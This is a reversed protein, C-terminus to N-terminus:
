ITDNHGEPHLPSYIYIYAEELEKEMALVIHVIFSFSNSKNNQKKVEAINRSLQINEISVTCANLSYLGERGVSVDCYPECCFLLLVLVIEFVM